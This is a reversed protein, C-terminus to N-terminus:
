YDLPRRAVLYLYDPIGKPADDVVVGRILVSQAVKGNGLYVMVSRPLYAYSVFFLLDGPQLGDQPNNPNFIVEPGSTLQKKLDATLDRGYVKKYLTQAFHPGDIGAESDGDPQYRTGQWAQVFGSLSSQDHSTRPKDPDVLGNRQAFGTRGPQSRPIRVARAQPPAAGLNPTDPPKILPYILRGVAERAAPPLERGTVGVDTEAAACHNNVDVLAVELRARHIRARLVLDMSPTHGRPCPGVPRGPPSRRAPRVTFKGTGLAAQRLTALLARRNPGKTEIQLDHSEQRLARKVVRLRGQGIIKGRWNWLAATPRDMPARYGTFVVRKNCLVDDAWRPQKCTGGSDQTVLVIRLGKPGYKTKLDRWSRGAEACGPCNEPFFVVALHRVGAKSLWPRVQLGSPEGAWGMATLLVLTSIM